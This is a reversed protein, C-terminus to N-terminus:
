MTVKCTHARLQDGGRTVRMAFGIKKMFDWARDVDRASNNDAM